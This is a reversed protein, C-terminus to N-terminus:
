RRQNARFQRSRLGCNQWCLESDAAAAGPDIDRHRRRWRGVHGEQPRNPRSHGSVARRSAGLSSSAEQPPFPRETSSNNRLAQCITEKTLFCSPFVSFTKIGADKSRTSGTLQQRYDSLDILESRM